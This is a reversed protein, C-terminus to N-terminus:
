ALVSRCSSCMYKGEEYIWNGFIEENCQACYTMTLKRVSFIYEAQTIEEEPFLNRLRSDEGEEVQSPSSEIVSDLNEDSSSEEDSSSDSDEELNEEDVNEEDVNEEDVNEKTVNEKAVNEDSSSEEISLDEITEHEEKQLQSEQSDKEPTEVKVNEVDSRDEPTIDQSTKESTLNEKSNETEINEHEDTRIPSSTTEYMVNSSNQTSGQRDESNKNAFIISKIKNKIRSRLGM